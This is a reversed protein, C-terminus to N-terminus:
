GSYPVTRSRHEVSVVDGVFSVLSLCKPGSLGVALLLGRLELGCM